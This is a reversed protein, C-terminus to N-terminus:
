ICNELVKLIHICVKLYIYVCVKLYIYVCVYEYLVCM